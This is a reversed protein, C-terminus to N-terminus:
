LTQARHIALLDSLVAFGTERRGAGAGILTIPGLLDTEITVANTAGGIHALPDDLPLPTAAVQGGAPTIAAILKYRQNHARAQAIDETRLHTIGSTHIPFSPDANFLINALIRAKGAADWGEVDGRPDAEAYGLAQAQALATAYDLGQEMQTLIYNTTGNLIGRVSHIHCGALAELTMQITPTGAMVTAEYRFARGKQRALDALESYALALPGKNATIVHKGAALAARIINTAPQGSQLDTVSVEILADAPAEQAIREAPWDRLLRPADPYRTLDGETALLAGLDLGDPHVLSGHRGTAVAVIRARFGYRVALDDAKAQLIQAFGQGVNGFGILALKM